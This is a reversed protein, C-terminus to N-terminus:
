VMPREFRPDQWDGSELLQRLVQVASWLQQHTTTLPHIGWRLADPKRSSVIVGKDVLAQALPAAGDFRLAVHGGRQAHNRPSSLRLPWSACQEDLLRILLNTLSRHRQDIAVPDVERWVDAAASFAANALV